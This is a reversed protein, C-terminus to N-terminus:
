SACRPAPSAPPPLPRRIDDFRRKAESLATEADAVGALVKVIAQMGPVWASQMALSSPMPIAAKAQEAFTRIDGEPM